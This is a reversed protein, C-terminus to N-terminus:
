ALWLPIRSIRFPFISFSFEWGAQRCAPPLCPIFFITFHWGGDQNKKRPNM